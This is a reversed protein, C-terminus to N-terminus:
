IYTLRVCLCARVCVFVCARVLRSLSTDPNLVEGGRPLFNGGSKVPQKYRILLGHTNLGLILGCIDASCSLM